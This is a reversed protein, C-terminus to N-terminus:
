PLFFYRSTFCIAIYTILTTFDYRLIPPLCSPLHQCHTASLSITASSTRWVLVFCLLNHFSTILPSIIFLSVILIRIILILHSIFILCPFLYIPLSYFYFLIPVVSVFFVYFYSGYFVLQSCFSFYLSSTFMGSHSLFHRQQVLKMLTLNKIKLSFHSWSELNSNM